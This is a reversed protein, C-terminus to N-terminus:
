EQKTLKKIENIIDSVATLVDEKTLYKGTSFRITGPVIQEPLKIAKLVNSLKPNGSHCASGTSAAIHELNSLLLSADIHPFCINLTNPLCKDPHSNLICSPLEKVLNIFLMNKMKRMHVSNTEFDDNAIEAAKGMGVIGAVNETGARRNNEHSAGHMFKEVNTGEKIYLAGVGKPGYFKHAAISLLDIGLKNVDVEIKGITQAADTHFVINNKKAIESIEQIPQISGIENNAHMISILITSEKIANEIEDVSVVGYKDVPVYTIQFGNKELYNCVETVAPHEINSTIIHNGRDKLAFATGKIAFNNSETGGSTFILEEPKCNILQSIKLRANEVAQKTRAGMKHSSSPNGYHTTLFPKMEEFVLPAIPTTANYDLYIM